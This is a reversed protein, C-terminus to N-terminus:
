PSNLGRIRKNFLIENYCHDFHPTKSFTPPWNNVILEDTIAVQIKASSFVSKFLIKQACPGSLTGEIIIYFIKM